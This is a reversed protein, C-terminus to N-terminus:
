FGEQGTLWYTFVFYSKHFVVVLSDMGVDSLVVLITSTGFLCM